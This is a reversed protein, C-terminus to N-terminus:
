IKKQKWSAGKLSILSPASFLGQTIPNKYLKAASIVAVAGTSGIVVNLWSLHGIFNLTYAMTLVANGLVAGAIGFGINWWVSYTTTYLKYSVLGAITGLLIILGVLM